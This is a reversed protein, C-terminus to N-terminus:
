PKAVKSRGGSLKGLLVASHDPRRLEGDIVVKFRWQGWGFTYLRINRAVRHVNARRIARNPRGADVFDFLDGNV